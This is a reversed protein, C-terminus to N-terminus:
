IGKKDPDWLVKHTQVMLRINSPIEGKRISDMMIEAIRDGGMNSVPTFIMNCNPHNEDIFEIAFRLDREDKAIFKLQDWFRLRDLNSLLFSDDQDSSPTKVDMSILIKRGLDSYGDIDLSGNTELDIQYGNNILSNVLELTGRQMLPEGGTLCILDLGLKKVTRLINDISMQEGDTMKLAYRTDCWHCELNCGALRIFTTPLGTHVGEGQFSSFIENVSLNMEAWRM